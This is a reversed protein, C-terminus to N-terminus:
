INAMSREGMSNVMLGKCCIHERLCLKIFKSRDKGIRRGSALNVIVLVLRCFWSGYLNEKKFIKLYWKRIIIGLLM